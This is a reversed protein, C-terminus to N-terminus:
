RAGRATLSLSPAKHYRPLILAKRSTVASQKVDKAHTAQPPPLEPPAPMAAPPAPPSSAVVLAPPPLCPPSAPWLLLSAPAPALELPPPEAPELLPPLVLLAPPVPVLPLTPRAHRAAPVNQVRSMASSHQLPAHSPSEHQPKRPSLQGSPWPQQLPLQMLPVQWHSGPVSSQPPPPPQTSMSHFSFAQPSQLVFHPTLESHSIPWHM